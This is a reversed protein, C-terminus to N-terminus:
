HSLSLFHVQVPWTIYLISQLNVSLYCLSSGSITSTLAYLPRPPSTFNSCKGSCSPTCYCWVFLVSSHQSFGKDLIPNAIAWYSSSGASHYLNTIPLLLKSHNDYQYKFKIVIIKSTHQKETIIDATAQTAKTAHFLNVSQKGKM